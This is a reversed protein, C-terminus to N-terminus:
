PSAFSGEGLEQQPLVQIIRVVSRRQAPRRAAEHKAQTGGGVGGPPTAAVIVHGIGAADHLPMVKAAATRVSGANSGDVVSWSGGTPPATSESMCSARCAANSRAGGEKRSWNHPRFPTKM